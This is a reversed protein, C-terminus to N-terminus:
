ISSLSLRSLPSLSHSSTPLLLLIRLSILLTLISLPHHHLQPLLCLAWYSSFLSSIELASSWLKYPSNFLISYPVRIPSPALIYLKANFLRLPATSVKWSAIAALTIPLSAFPNSIIPLVVLM